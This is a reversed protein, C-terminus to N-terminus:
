QAPRMYMFENSLTGDPNQVQLTVTEGRVIKTASGKAILVITPNAANNRTGQMAGRPHSFARMAIVTRRLRIRQRVM